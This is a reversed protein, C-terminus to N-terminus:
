AIKLFDIVGYIENVGLNAGVGLGNNSKTTSVMYQLQLTTSGSIIIIGTLSCIVSASVTTGADTNSAQLDTFSAGSTNHVRITSPGCQFFPQFARILYTGATNLTISNSSLTCINSTDFDETNLPSVGWSGSTATGGDTANSLINSCKVYSMPPLNATPILGAGSPINALNVLSSGSVLAATTLQALNANAIQGTLASANVKGATSITNLKSDQIAAGNSIDSDIISTVTANDIIGYFDTKQASDPLSSGHTVVAM